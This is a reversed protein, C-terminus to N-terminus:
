AASMTAVRGTAANVPGVPVPCGALSFGTHRALAVRRYAAGAGPAPFSRTRRHGAIEVVRSLPAPAVEVDVGGQLAGM